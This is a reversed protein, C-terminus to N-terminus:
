CIKHNSCRGDSIDSCESAAFAAYRWIRNVDYAGISLGLIIAAFNLWVGVATVWLLRKTVRDMERDGKEASL